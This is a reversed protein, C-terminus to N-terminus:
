YGSRREPGEQRRTPRLEAVRTLIEGLRRELLIAEAHRQDIDASLRADIRQFNGVNQQHWSERKDDQRALAAIFEDQTIMQSKLTEFEVRLAAVDARSDNMQNWLRIGLFSLLGTLAWGALAAVDHWFAATDPAVPVGM